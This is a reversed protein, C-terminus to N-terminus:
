IDTPSSSPILDAVSLIQRTLLLSSYPCSYMVPILLFFRHKQYCAFPNTLKLCAENAKSKKTPCM